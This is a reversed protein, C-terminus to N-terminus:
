RCCECRRPWKQVRMKLPLFFMRSETEILVLEEPGTPRQITLRPLQETAERLQVRQAGTDDGVVLYRESPKWIPNESATMAQEVPKSSGKSKNATGNSDLTKLIDGLVSNLQSPRVPNATVYEKLLEVVLLSRETLKNM